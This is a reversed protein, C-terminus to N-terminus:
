GVVLYGTMQAPHIDCHFFYRGPEAPTTFTMSRINGPGTVVSTAALTEAEASEGLFFHLNHAIPTNNLYEVTVQTSPPAALESKTYTSGEMTAIELTLAAGPTSTAIETPAGTETPTPTTTPV